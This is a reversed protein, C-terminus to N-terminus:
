VADTLIPKMTFCVVTNETYNFNYMYKLVLLSYYLMFDLEIMFVLYFYMNRDNELSHNEIIFVGKSDNCLGVDVNAM